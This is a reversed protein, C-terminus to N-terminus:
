ICGEIRVKCDCDIYSIEVLIVYKKSAGFEQVTEDAYKGKVTYFVLVFYISYICFEYAKEVM